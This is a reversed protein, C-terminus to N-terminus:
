RRKKRARHAKKLAARRKKTFKYKGMNSEREKRQLELEIQFTKTNVSEWLDAMQLYKLKGERVM